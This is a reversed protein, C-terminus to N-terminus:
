RTGSTAESNIPPQEFLALFAEAIKIQGEDSPHVNDVFLSRKDGFRTRVDATICGKIYPVRDSIMTAQRSNFSSGYVPPLNGLIVIAGHAKGIDVMKQLNILANSVSGRIADNTGMLIIVHSPKERELVEDILNVGFLTEQNKVAANVLDVGLVKKFHVTWPTAMGFGTSLSDGIVVVKDPRALLTQSDADAANALGANGLVVFFLILFLRMLPFLLRNISSNITAVIHAEPQIM